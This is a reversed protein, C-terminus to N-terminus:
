YKRNKSHYVIFCGFNEEFRALKKQITGWCNKIQLGSLCQNRAWSQAINLFILLREYKKKTVAPAREVWLYLSKNSFYRSPGVKIGLKTMSFPAAATSFSFINKSFVLTFRYCLTPQKFFQLIKASVRAYFTTFCYSNTWQSSSNKKTCVGTRPIDYARIIPSINGPLIHCFM